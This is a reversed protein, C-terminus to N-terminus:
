VLGPHTFTVRLRVRKRDDSGSLENAVIPGM